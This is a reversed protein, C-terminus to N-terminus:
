RRESMRYADMITRYKVLLNDREAPPQGSRVWGLITKAVERFQEEHTITLGSPVVVRWGGQYPAAALGPWKGSLRALAAELASGAAAADTGPAPRVFLVAGDATGTRIGVEAKTGRMLAYSEDGGGPQARFRWEVRVKAFVGRQRYTFEGNADCQLVGAADLGRRLGDTWEGCGTSASYDALTVPTPWRRASVVEVDGQSLRAGPLATWRVDDVVHTTIDVIAAGQCSADYYWAPRRLPSGNVLKFFHHVSERVIGPSDASGAVQEGFLARDHALECQLVNLFEHRDTMLDMLVLNKERAVSMAEEIVAYAEPAIALPKDAMVHFGARVAALCYGAKRDNRGALVAVVNRAGRNEEVARELYDDGAYVIENWRTPNEARENFSRVLALHADLEPGKPAYVRVDTSVDGGYPYKQVLAAHFHGPDIVVFRIKGGGDACTGAMPVTAALLLALAGM